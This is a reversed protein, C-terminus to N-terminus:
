FILFGYSVSFITLLFKSESTIQVQFELKESPCSVLKLTAFFSKSIIIRCATICSFIITVRISIRNKTSRADQYSGQLYGVQHVFNEQVNIEIGKKCTKPLWTGMM